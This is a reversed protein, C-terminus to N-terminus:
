EKAISPDFAVLAVAMMLYEMHELVREQVGNVCEHGWHNAHEPPIGAHVMQRVRQVIEGTVDAVAAKVQEDTINLGYHDIVREALRVGYRRGDEGLTSHKETLGDVVM